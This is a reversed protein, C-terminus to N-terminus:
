AAPPLMVLLEWIHGDPDEFGHQVMFGHDVRSRPAAGGNEVALRVLTDLQEVSACSLAVLVETSRRADAVPKGTFGQFFSEVLLMAFLNEGLVLCAAKEDTYDSNFAYGLARWFAMARPLDQVPLNVFIQQHM